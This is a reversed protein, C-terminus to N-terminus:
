RTSVSFRVAPVPETSESATRVIAATDSAAPAATPDSEVPPQTCGAALAVLLLLALLAAPIRFNHKM